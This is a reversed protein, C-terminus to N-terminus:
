SACYSQEDRQVAPEQLAPEDPKDSTGAGLM